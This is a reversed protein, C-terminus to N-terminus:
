QWLHELDSNDNKPRQLIWYLNGNTGRRGLIRPDVGAL